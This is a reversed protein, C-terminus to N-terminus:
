RHERWLLAVLVWALAVNIQSFTAIINGDRMCSGSAVLNLLVVLYALKKM